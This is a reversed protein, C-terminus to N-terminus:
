VSPKYLSKRDTYVKWQFKDKVDRKGRTYLAYNIGVQEPVPLKKNAAHQCVRKRM